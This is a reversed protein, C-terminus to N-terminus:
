QPGVGASEVDLREIRQAGMYDGGTLDFVLDLYESGVEDITDEVRRNDDGVEIDFLVEGHKDLVRRIRLIPIGDENVWGFVELANVGPLVEAVSELAMRRALSVLAASASAHESMMAEFENALAPSPM